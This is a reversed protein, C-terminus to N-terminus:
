DGYTQHYPRLEPPVTRSTRSIDRPPGSYMALCAWRALFWVGAIVASTLIALAFLLSLAAIQQVDSM